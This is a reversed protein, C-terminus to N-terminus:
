RIEKIEEEHKTVKVEQIGRSTINIGPFSLEAVEAM